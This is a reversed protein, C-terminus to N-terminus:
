KAKPTETPTPEVTTTTISCPPIQVAQGTSTDFVSTGGTAASACSGTVVNGGATICTQTGDGNNDCTLNTNNPTTSGGCAGLLLLTVFLWNKM